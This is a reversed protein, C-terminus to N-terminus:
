QRHKSSLRWQMSAIVLGLALAIFCDDGQIGDGFIVDSLLSGAFIGALAILCDQYRNL